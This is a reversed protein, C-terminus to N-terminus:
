IPSDRFATPDGRCIVAARLALAKAIMVKQREGDSLTQVQRPALLHIGTLSIAEDVLRNDEDNLRGWFGTYPSRGMAVLERATMQQVDPRETLVIGVQRALENDTFDDIARGGISIDGGLRPQFNALTRLLTSKGIGNQGLLCTLRHSGIAANIDGAVTRVGQKTKYGISLHSLVVTENEM